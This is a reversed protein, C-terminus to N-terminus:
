SVFFAQAREREKAAAVPDGVQVNVNGVQQGVVDTDQDVRAHQTGV